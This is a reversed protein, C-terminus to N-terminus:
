LDGTPRASGFRMPDNWGECTYDKAIANRYNKHCEKCLVDRERKVPHQWPEVQLWASLRPMAM